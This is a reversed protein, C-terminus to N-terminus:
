NMQRPNRRKEIAWFLGRSPPVKGATNIYIGLHEKRGIRDHQYKPPPRTTKIRGEDTARKQLIRCSSGKIAVSLVMM